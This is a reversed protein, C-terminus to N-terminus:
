MGLVKLVEGQGREKRHHGKPFVVENESERSSLLVTTNIEDNRQFELSACNAQEEM